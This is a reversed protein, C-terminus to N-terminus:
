RTLQVKGVDQIMTTIVNTLYKPKVVMALSASLSDGVTLIQAIADPKKPEQVPVRKARGLEM